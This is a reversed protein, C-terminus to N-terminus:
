FRLIRTVVRGQEGAAVVMYVGPPAVGLWEGLEELQETHRIVMGEMNCLQFASFVGSVELEPAQNSGLPNPVVRVFLSDGAPQLTHSSQKPTIYVKFMRKSASSTTINPIDAKIGGFLWGVFTKGQMQRLKFVENGYQPATETPVFVMNSGLLADFRQPMLYEVSSGDARRCFTSIDRIFPVREDYKVTQSGQDFYHTSLGAFLMTYMSGDTSDFLPVAPCTYQSFVQEYGADMMFIQNEDIYVPNYYPLDVDPRFVGGYLCLAQSGDPRIVPALTFDRRRLNAEDHHVTYDTISLGTGQLNIRFKRIEYTYEQTFSASPTQTYKGSFDHGGVLYFYDGMKDMEGGCVRMNESQIQRFAASPNGNNVMISVLTPLHVATLMPFTIFDGTSAEKGYGGAMFFWEGDQAYQPNTAKLPDVFPILLADVGFSHMDGTEPNILWIQANAENEPFATFPFFGHLGGVRGGIFIWWEEWHAFASSHLGPLEDQTVEEMQMSFPLEAPNGLVPNQALSITSLFCLIAVPFLLHKM